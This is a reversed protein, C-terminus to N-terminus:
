DTEVQENDRIEHTHQISQSMVSSTGIIALPVCVIQHWYLRAFTRLSKHASKSWQWTVVKPLLIKILLIAVVGGILVDLLATEVSSVTFAARVISHEIPGSERCRVDSEVV